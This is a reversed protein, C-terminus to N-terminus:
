FTMTTNKAIVFQRRRDRCLWNWTTFVPVQTVTPQNQLSPIVFKKRWWGPLIAMKFLGWNIGYVPDTTDADLRPVWCIKNQRFMPKDDYPDMDIGINENQAKCLQKTSSYVNYTTYYGFKDGTNFDANGGKVPAEFYTQDAATQWKIILDDETVDTYQATYNRWSPHDTPSIGAVSTFGTQIGGNFGTTNNKVIWYPVGWPDLNNNAPTQWFWTEFKEVFDNDDMDKREAILDVIKASGKNMDLERHEFTYGGQESRYPAQATILGNKPQINVPEYFGALRNNDSKQTQVQWQFAFGGPGDAGEKEEYMGKKTFMDYAVYMQLPMAINTRRGRGLKRLTSSVLDGIQDAQTAM